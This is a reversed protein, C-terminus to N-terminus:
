LFHYPNDYSHMSYHISNLRIPIELTCTFDIFYPEKTFPTFLDLLTYIFIYNSFIHCESLHISASFLTFLINVQNNLM